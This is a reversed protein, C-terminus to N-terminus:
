FCKQLKKNSVRDKYKRDRGDTGDRRIASNFASATIEHDAAGQTRFKTSTNTGQKAKRIDDARSQVESSASFAQYSYFLKM